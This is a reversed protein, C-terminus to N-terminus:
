ARCSAILEKLIRMADAKGHRGVETEPGVCSPCGNECPCTLAVSLAHELLLEQMEYAKESLGVGGPFQDYLFLTPRDTQPAKVQYIVKIDRPACM